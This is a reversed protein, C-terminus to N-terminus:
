GPRLHCIEFESLHDLVIEPLLEVHAVRAGAPGRRLADTLAQISASPGQGAVEVSDDSRNCVWGVIGFARAAARVFARYGV